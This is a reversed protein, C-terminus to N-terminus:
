GDDSASYDINFRSYKEKLSAMVEHWGKGWQNTLAHTQEDYHILQGDGCFWRRKSFRSAGEPVQEEALAVFEAATLKGPLSFWIRHDSRNFSESIERPNIGESCLFRCILLIAHNKPLPGHQAGGLRVDFRTRDVTSASSRREKQAKERLQIQFEAAEPLPIIQQVDVLVRGDLSYPKLRVCRIDVGSDLLWLVSSTLEKSFEASALIIRVVQGFVGDTPEEWELFELIEGRADPDARGASELYRRFAEVAEDFTMTSVMAAYRIAQLEMHGGDETRKLEIVVLNAKKDICLLDIRRRSGEWNGFEEAIVLLDPAVVSIRERLLRQLDQRERIGAARYSTGKIPHIGDKRIEYIPM